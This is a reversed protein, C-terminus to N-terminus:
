FNRILGLKMIFGDGLRQSGAQDSAYFNSFSPGGEIFFALMRTNDWKNAVVNQWIQIGPLFSVGGQTGKMTTSGAFYMDYSIGLYPRIPSGPKFGEHILMAFQMMPYSIEPQANTSSVSNTGASLRFQFASYHPTTVSLNEGVQNQVGHFDIAWSWSDTNTVDELAFATASLQLLFVITLIKM